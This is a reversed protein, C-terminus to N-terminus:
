LKLVAKWVRSLMSMAQTGSEMSLEFYEFSSYRKGYEVRDLILVTDPLYEVILRTDLIVKWVRSLISLAQTCSGM